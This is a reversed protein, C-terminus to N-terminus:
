LRTKINFYNIIFLICRITEIEMIIEDLNSSHHTTLESIAGDKTRELETLLNKLISSTKKSCGELSM